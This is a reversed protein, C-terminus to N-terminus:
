GVANIEKLRIACGEILNGNWKIQRENITMYVQTNISYAPIGFYHLVQNALQDDYKARVPAYDAATLLKWGVEWERIQNIADVKLTADLTRNESANENPIERFTTYKPLTINGLYLIMNAM